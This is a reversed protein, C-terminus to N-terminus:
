DAPPKPLPDSARLVQDFLVEGTKAELFEVRVSDTLPDFTLFTAAREFSLHEFRGAPAWADRAEKSAEIAVGLPNLNGGPGVLIERLAARPGDPEVRAVAGVHFDGSLFWVNKLANQTIFDLVQERQRAYGQWRDNELLWAEPFRTIPVSNLVVKFHAPSTKLRDFFWALQEKSLYIPDDSARTDPRRESRCDLVIFEVSEGWRFSRWVRGGVERSVAVHEFWATRATELQEPTKRYYGSDNDVEHDDWTAYMATSALLKRYGETAMTARWKARYEELTEAGDNYTMDGLHCLVDAEREALRVLAPFPAYRMNTCSTAAVTVPRRCGDGHATRFRGIASRSPREGDRLWAFEYATGAELRAVEHKLYGDESTVSVDRVLRAGGDAARRWVLLRAPALDAAYTWLVASSASVAGSQIGLPFLDEAPALLAPDDIAQAGDLTDAGSDCSGEDPAPAAAPACAGLFPWAIAAGAGLRLVERRGMGRGNAM